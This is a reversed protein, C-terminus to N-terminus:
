YSKWIWAEERLGRPTLPLHFVCFSDRTHKELCLQVDRERVSANLVDLGCTWKWMSKNHMCQAYSIEYVRMSGVTQVQSMLFGIM